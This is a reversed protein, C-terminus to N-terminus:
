TIWANPGFRGRSGSPSLTPKPRGPRTRAGAVGLSALQRDFEGGYVADRDHIRYRPRGGWPTAELLQHWIWAATPSATSRSNSCEFLLRGAAPWGWRIPRSIAGKLAERLAVDSALLELLLLRDELASVRRHGASV